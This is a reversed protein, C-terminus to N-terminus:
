VYYGIANLIAVGVGTVIVGTVATVLVTRLQKTDFWVTIGVIITFLIGFFISAFPNTPTIWDYWSLFDM